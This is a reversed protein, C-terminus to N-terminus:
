GTSLFCESINKPYKHKIRDLRPEGSVQQKCGNKDRYMIEVSRLVYTEVQATCTVVPSTTTLPAATAWM